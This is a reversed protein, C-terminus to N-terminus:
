GVPGQAWYGAGCLVVFCFQTSVDNVTSVICFRSKWWPQWHLHQLQKRKVPSCGRAPLPQAVATCAFGLSLCGATVWLATGPGVVSCVSLIYTLMSGELCQAWSVEQISLWEEGTIDGMEYGLLSLSKSKLAKAGTVGSGSVRGCRVM